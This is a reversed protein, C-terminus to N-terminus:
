HDKHRLKSTFIKNRDQSSPKHSNSESPIRPFLLRGSKSWKSKSTRRIKELINKGLIKGNWFFSWKKRLGLELEKCLFNKEFIKNETTFVVTSVREFFFILHGLTKELRLNEPFGLFEINM